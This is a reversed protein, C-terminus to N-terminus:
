RPYPLTGHTGAAIVKVHAATDHEVALDRGTAPKESELSRAVDGRLPYVAIALSQSPDEM